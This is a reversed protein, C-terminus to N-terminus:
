GKLVGMMEDLGKEQELTLIRHALDTAATLSLQKSTLMVFKKILDQRSLPNEPEGLPYEIYESLIRGDRLKIQARAPWRKPYLADLLPDHYCNSHAMLSRILPHEVNSQTYQNVDAAGRVLAVAAAFPASFQADVVNQPSRKQEIPHAVLRKGGSLVGLEIAEVGNPQIDYQAKLSLICDILGHNYRCCGYPKIAVTMIQYSNGLGALLRHPNPEDTYSQLLGLPGDFITTPGTFGAQALGAAVIGAHAAWGANLRKTWAGDSLYELSGAAMTEAIGLALTLTDAELELLYGAAVTAGFVGAVGTPHFGRKYTSAPNLANGVRLTVEYGAVVAALLETPSTQREEAIALAAPMVAVGPHLSSECTVDDMEIAHSATGNALAAWAAGSSFGAGIVSAQGSSQMTRIFAAMPQSSAEGSGRVAVGLHDLLLEKTREQVAKPLAQWQISRCFSALMAATSTRTM